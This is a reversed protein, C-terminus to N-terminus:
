WCIRRGGAQPMGTSPWHPRLGADCPSTLSSSHADIFLTPPPRAKRPSERGREGSAEIWTRGATRVGHVCLPSCSAVSRVSNALRHSAPELSAGPDRYRLGRSRNLPRPRLPSSCIAPGCRLRFRCRRSPDALAPILPLRAQTSKAFAVSPVPVQLQHRPGEPTPPRPVTLTLAGPTTPISPPSSPGGAFPAM